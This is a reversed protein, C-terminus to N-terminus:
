KLTEQGKLNRKIRYKKEIQKYVIILVPIGLLIGGFQVINSALSNIPCLVAAILQPLTFFSWMLGNSRNYAKIDTIDATKVVDGAWFNVPAKSLFSDLAIGGFILILIITIFENIVWEM